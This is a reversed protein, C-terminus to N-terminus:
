EARNHTPPARPGERERRGVALRGLLNIRTEVLGESTIAYFVPLALFFLLALTASLSWGAVAGAIYLAVGFLARHRERPFFTPDVHPELLHPNVSLVHFVILWSTCMLGGIAAYLM